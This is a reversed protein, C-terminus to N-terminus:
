RRLGDRQAAGDYLLAAARPGRPIADLVLGAGHCPRTANAADDRLREPADIRGFSM